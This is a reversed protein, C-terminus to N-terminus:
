FISNHGKDICPWASVNTKLATLKKAKEASVHSRDSKFILGDINHENTFTKVDKLTNFRKILM